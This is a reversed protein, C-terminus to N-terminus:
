AARRPRIPPDDESELIPQIPEYGESQADREMGYVVSSERYFEGDQEFQEGYGEGYGDGYGDSYGYGYGYGYGMEENSIGNAVLGILRCGTARFSEVARIVAQRHNKEPRVVLIAGDVLQGVIQADSVALIPPCDVIVRDFQSDAWALLEVFASSSLLEAPNPRRLGVPLVSLGQMESHHLFRPASEAPPEDSTLVDSVGPQGKLDMLTTFGPRRLDADIVLTKKGAQAFAVALNSAVTTKGDGPESSSILICDSTEGSLAVATRLTRFAESEVANPMAFTHITQIGTGPLQSLKRVISLVQVGLQSSLDEPSNFRDDLVDQLYAISCGVVLGGLISFFLVMKLRPSVPKEDALPERVVTVQIPAQDQRMDIAAIKEFMSDYQSELRAVESELMHFRLLSGNHDVAEQRAQQYAAALQAVEQQQQLISQYLMDRVVKGFQKSDSDGLRRGLSSRHHELYNELTAVQSQLEAMQPHNPGYFSSLSDLQARATLLKRQQESVVQLDQPSLGLTALMMQRGVVTEIGMLHQNIDLGQDLAEDVSQLISRLEIVREQGALLAEHLHLARQVEPEVYRENHRSVLHGVQRSFEQLENQKRILEQELQGRQQVLSTLVGEANGQHTRGVFDLYSDVVARVVAAATDPNKSRYSVDIINTKRTTQVSLNEAIEKEWRNPHVERLDTHYESPLTEVAQALVVPSKLLERHTAMTNDSSDSDGVTALEDANQQIILLKATSEYKRIALVFYIGGLAVSGFLFALIVNKRFRLIRAVRLLSSALDVSVDDEIPVLNTTQQTM